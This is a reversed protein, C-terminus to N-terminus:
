VKRSKSEWPPSFSLGNKIENSFVVTTTDNPPHTKLERHRYISFFSVKDDGSM